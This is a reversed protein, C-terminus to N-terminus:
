DGLAGGDDSGAGRLEGVVRRGRVLMGGFRAVGAPPAEDDDAGGGSLSLTIAGTLRSRAAIGDDDAVSFRV